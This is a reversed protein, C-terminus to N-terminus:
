ILLDRTIMLIIIFNLHKKKNKDEFQKPIEEGLWMGLWHSNQFQKGYCCIFRDFILCDGSDDIDHKDYTKQHIEM